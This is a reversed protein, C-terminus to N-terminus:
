SLFSISPDIILIYNPDFIPSFNMTVVSDGEPTFNLVYHSDLPVKVGEIIQYSIPAQDILTSNKLTIILNGKGDLALKEAYNYKFKINELNAGPYVIFEYKLQGNAITFILDINDWVQHYFLKQCYTNNSEDNDISINEELINRYQDDIINFALAGYSKLNKNVQIIANQTPSTHSHMYILGNAALNITAKFETKVM